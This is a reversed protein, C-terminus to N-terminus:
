PSESWVEVTLDPVRRFERENATVMALGHALCTAALWLDHAGIMVGSSALQAWLSAHVRATPLDIPLIPFRTLIAEVYASRRAAIAPSSARHVGHLLECASVVSISFRDTETRACHRTLDLRDREAEILVSTDILLDM